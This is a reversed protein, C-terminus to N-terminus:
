AGIRNEVEAFEDAPMPLRYEMLYADEGSDPFWERAVSTARFGAARFFFQADLNTERLELTIRSRRHPSLKNMLKEVMQIGIGCRRHDAHVAFNLIHLKYKHLEYMMFGLVGEYTNPVLSREAVMSICNRQRMCRLFDEECWPYENSVNEISCVEPMDRRIMWRIHARTRLKAEM